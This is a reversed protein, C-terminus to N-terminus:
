PVFGGGGGPEMSSTEFVWTGYWEAAKNWDVVWDLDNFVHWLTVVEGSEVKQNCYEFVKELCESEKM